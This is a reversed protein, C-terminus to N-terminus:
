SSLLKDMWDKAPQLILMLGNMPNPVYYNSGLLIGIVDSILVALILFGVEKWYKKKWLSPVETFSLITLLIVMVLSTITM